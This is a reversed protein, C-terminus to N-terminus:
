TTRGKAWLLIGSGVTLVAAALSLMTWLAARASNGSPAVPGPERAAAAALAAAASAGPDSPVEVERYGLAALADVDFRRPQKPASSSGQLLIQDMEMKIMPNEPDFGLSKAVKARVEQDWKVLLTEGLMWSRDLGCECDAGIISLLGALTRETIDAGRLLPGMRRARGYLVAAAPAQTDNPNLGLNWLLTQERPLQDREITVIAPPHDVAKPLMAMRATIAEIAAAAATHAAENEEDRPGEVLLVVGYSESVKRVIEGRKPSALLGDVAAWLSDRFTEGPKTVPIVRSAGSPLVLVAAPFSGISWEDLRKRAPHLKQEDVNIIEPRIITDMLAAYSVQKFTTVDREPTQNNVFGFLIAPESDLDAFGIDRVNYECARAPSVPTLWLLFAVLFVPLAGSRFAKPRWEAREM